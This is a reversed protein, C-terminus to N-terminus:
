FLEKDNLNELLNEFVVVNDFKSDLSLEFDNNFDFNIGVNKLNDPDGHYLSLYKRWKWINASNTQNILEYPKFKDNNGKTYDFLSKMRFGSPAYNFLMDIKFDIEQEWLVKCVYLQLDNYTRDAVGSKLDIIANVRKRNFTIECVIDITTAVLGHGEMVPYEIAVPVLERQQCFIIFGILDKRIDRKKEKIWKLCEPFDFEKENFFNEMDQILWEKNLFIKEKKLLRGCCYHFYTGYNASNESYFQIQDPSMKKFWMDLGFDNPAEKLVTHFGPAIITMGDKYIRVYHRRGKNDIRYNYYDPEIIGDKVYDPKLIEMAVENM